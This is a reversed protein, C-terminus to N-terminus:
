WCINQLKPFEACSENQHFKTKLEFNPRIKCFWLVPNWHIHSAVTSLLPSARGGPCLQQTCRRARVEGGRLQKGAADGRSTSAGPESGGGRSCWRPRRRANERDVVSSGRHREREFEGCGIGRLGFQASWLTRWVRALEACGRARERVRGIAPAERNKELEPRSRRRSGEGHGLREQLYCAMSAPTGM